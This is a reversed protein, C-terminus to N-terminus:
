PKENLKEALEEACIRKYDRDDPDAPNYYFNIIEHRMDGYGKRYVTFRPLIGATTEEIEAKNSRSFIESLSHALQEEIHESQERNLEISKQLVKRLRRNNYLALLAALTMLGFGIYIGIM